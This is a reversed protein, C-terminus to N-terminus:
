FINAEREIAQAAKWKRQGGHDHNAAEGASSVDNEALAKLKVSRSPFENPVM